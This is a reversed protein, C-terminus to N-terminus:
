GAVRMKPMHKQVLREIKQWEYDEGPLQAPDIQPNLKRFEDTDLNNPRKNSIPIHLGGKIVVRFGPSPQTDRIGSMGATPKFVESNGSGALRGKRRAEEVDADGGGAARIEAETLMVQGRRSSPPSPLKVQGSILQQREEIKNVVDQMATEAGEAQKTLLEAQESDGKGYLIAAQTRLRQAESKYENVKAWGGKVQPDDNIRKQLTVSLRTASQQLRVKTAAINSNIQEIRKKQVEIAEKDKQEKIQLEGELQAAALRRVEPDTSERGLQTALIMSRENIKKEAEEKSKLKFREQLRQNVADNQRRWQEQKFNEKERELTMQRTLVNAAKRDDTEIDMEGFTKEQSFQPPPPLSVTRSRVQDAGTGGPAATETPQQVNLRPKADAGHLIGSAQPNYQEGGGFLGKLKEKIDQHGKPKLIDLAKEMAFQRQSPTHTAIWDPDKIANMVMEYDIQKREFDEKQRKDHDSKFTDFLSSLLGVTFAQGGSVGGFQNAM